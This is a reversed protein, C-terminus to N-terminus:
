RRIPTRKVGAFIETQSVWDTWWRQKQMGSKGISKNYSGGYEALWRWKGACRMRKMVLSGEWVSWWGSCMGDRWSAKRNKSKVIGIVQTEFVRCTLRARWSWFKLINLVGVEPVFCRSRQLCRRKRPRIMLLMHGKFKYFAFRPPMKTSPLVVYDSCDKGGSAVAPTVKDM